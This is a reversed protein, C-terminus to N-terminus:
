VAHVSEISSFGHQHLYKTLAFHTSGGPPMRQQIKTASLLTVFFDGPMQVRSVQRGMLMLTSRGQWMEKTHTHPPPANIFSKLIQLCQIPSGRLMLWVPLVSPCLPHAKPGPM